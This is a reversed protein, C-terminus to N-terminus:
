MKWGLNLLDGLKSLYIHHTHLVPIYPVFSDQKCPCTSESANKMLFLAESVSQDELYLEQTDSSSTM